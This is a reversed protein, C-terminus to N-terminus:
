AGGRCTIRWVVGIGITFLGLPLLWFVIGHLSAPPSTLVEEGYRSVFYAIISNDDMGTSIMKRVHQRMDRALAVDSDAITQGACVVCRLTAFLHQARAEQSSAELPADVTIAFAVVPWLFSLFLLTRIVRM